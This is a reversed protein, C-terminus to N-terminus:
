GLEQVGGGSVTLIQGSIWAAAPSCLFLAANAMDQPDGLRQLPTHALMQREIDATLVSKLAHTLTAGPAIGNVRIGRPGLDFAINRILHNAAAKSSGYSAMHQNRNEGAM